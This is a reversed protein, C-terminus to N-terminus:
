ARNADFWKDGFELRGWLLIAARAIPTFQENGALVVAISQRDIGSVWVGRHEEYNLQSEIQQRTRNSKAAFIMEPQRLSLDEAMGTCLIQEFDNESLSLEEHLERRVEDFINLPDRPELAGAFPHVRSPYYAVSANRRGMMLFGDSSILATSLGIANALIKQGYQDALSANRLNTGLFIKYSTRSLSLHFSDGHREFSELRCM